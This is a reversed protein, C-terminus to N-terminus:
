SHNEQLIQLFQQELSKKGAVLHNLYIGNGALDKNLMSVPIDQDLKVRILQGSENLIVVGRTQLLRNRLGVIDDAGLDYSNEASMDAAVNVSYLM